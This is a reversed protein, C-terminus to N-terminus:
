LFVHFKLTGAGAELFIVLFSRGSAGRSGGPAAGVKPGCPAWLRGPPKEPPNLPTDEPAELGEHPARRAEEPLMKPKMKMIKRCENRMERDPEQENESAHEHESKTKQLGRLRLKQFKSARSGQLGPHGGPTAFRNSYCCVAM